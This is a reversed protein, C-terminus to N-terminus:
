KVREFRLRKANWKYRRNGSSQGVIEVTPPSIDLLHVTSGGDDFVISGTDGAFKFIRLIQLQGSQSFFALGVLSHEADNIGRVDDVKSFVPVSGLKRLGSTRREYIVAVVNTPDNDQDFYAILLRHEGVKWDSFTHYPPDHRIDSKAVKGPDSVVYGFNCEPSHLADTTRKACDVALGVQSFLILSVLADRVQLM